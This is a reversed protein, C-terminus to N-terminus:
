EFCFLTENGKKIYIVYPRIKEQFNCMYLDLYCTLAYIIEFNTSNCMIKNLYFAPARSTGLNEVMYGWLHVGINGYDYM